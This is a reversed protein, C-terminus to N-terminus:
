GGGIEISKSEADEWKASVVTTKLIKSHSGTSDTDWKRDDAESRGLAVIEVGMEGDPRRPGGPLGSASNAHTTREHSLMPLFRKMRHEGQSEQGQSQKQTRKEGSRSSSLQYSGSKSQGYGFESPTGRRRLEDSGYLGSPLSELLPRLYPICSTIISICEVIQATLTWKWLDRTADHSDFGDLYALQIATAIIDLSRTGFFVLITIKKGLSMQLIVIVHVPFLILALDTLINLIGMSLWFSNLNLCQNQREIFRWPESSGCQFCIVFISVLGWLAITITLGVGLHRHLNLETLMMLLSIISLKACVLTTIYLLKNAYEAKQYAEVQSSTLTSLSRGLGNVTQLTVAIGSAISVTITSPDKIEKEVKPIARTSINIDSTKLLPKIGAKVIIRADIPAPNRIVEHVNPIDRAQFKSPTPIAIVSAALTLLTTTIAAFLM